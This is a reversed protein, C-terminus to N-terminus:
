IIRNLKSVWRVRPVLIAQLSVVGDACLELFSHYNNGPNCVCMTAQNGDWATYEDTAGKGITYLAYVQSVTMCVGNNGCNTPGCLVTIGGNTDRVVVGTEFVLFKRKQCAQGGYGPMCNCTGQILQTITPFINIWLLAFRSVTKRNCTGQNSCEATSHASGFAIAKDAWANGYPCKVAFWLKHRLRYIRTSICVKHVTRCLIGCIKVSAGREQPPKTTVPETAM